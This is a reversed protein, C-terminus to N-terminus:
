TVPSLRIRGSGIHFPAEAPLPRITVTFRRLVNCLTSAADGGFSLHQKRAIAQNLEVLGAVEPYHVLSLRNKGLDLTHIVAVGRTLNAGSTNTRISATQYLSARAPLAIRCLNTSPPSKIM